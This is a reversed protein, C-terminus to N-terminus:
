KKRVHVITTSYKDMIIQGDVTKEIKAVLLCNFNEFLPQM